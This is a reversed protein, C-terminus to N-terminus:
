HAGGQWRGRGGGWGGGHGWGGGRGGRWGNGWRYPRYSSYGFGLSVAPGFYAPGGAIYAGDVAGYPTYTNYGGGYAYPSDYPVAVCGGLLLAAGLTGILLIKKM